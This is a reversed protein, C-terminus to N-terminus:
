HQLVSFIDFFLKSQPCTFLSFSPPATSNLLKIDQEDIDGDGDKDYGVQKWTALTIGMNTAGGKDFKDNVFGGEWRAIKPALFEIKAM